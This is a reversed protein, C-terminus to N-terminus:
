DADEDAHDDEGKKGVSELAARQLEENAEKLIAEAQGVPFSVDYWGIMM